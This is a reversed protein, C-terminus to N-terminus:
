GSVGPTNKMLWTTGGPPRPPSLAPLGTGEWTPAGQMEGERKQLFNSYFCCTGQFFAAWRCMTSFAFVGSIPLPMLTPGVDM